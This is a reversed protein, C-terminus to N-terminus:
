LTPNIRLFRGNPSVLILSNDPGPIVTQLKQTRVEELISGDTANVLLLGGNVMLLLRDDDGIIPTAQRPLVWKEQGSIADMAVLGRGPVPQYVALGISVPSEALPVTTRLQWRDLGDARDLAYLTQDESPIFVGLQDVEPRAVIPGFSKGRWMLRGVDATLMAYVGNADAALVNFGSAIPPVVIRSTLQYSWKSRGTNVDHAFVRGNMGGFVAYSEILAPGAGVISDLSTLSVAEGTDAELTFMQSSSNVYLKDQYRVAAILDENSTGIVERWLIEGDRASIASVIDAPAEITVIMGELLRVDALRGRNNMKLQTAWFVSYGIKQADLPEILLGTPKLPASGSNSKTDRIDSACGQAAMLSLLVLVAVCRESM